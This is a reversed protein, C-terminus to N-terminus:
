VIWTKLTRVLSYKIDRHELIDCLADGSNYDNGDVYIKLKEKNCLEAITDVLEKANNRLDFVYKRNNIFLTAYKADCIIYIIKDNVNWTKQNKITGDHNQEWVSVEKHIDEENESYELHWDYEKILALTDKLLRLADIAKKYDDNDLCRNYVDNLKKADEILTDVTEQFVNKTEM